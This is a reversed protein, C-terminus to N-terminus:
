FERGGGFSQPFFQAAMASPPNKPQSFVEIPRYGAAPPVKVGDTRGCGHSGRQAPCCFSAAVSHDVASGDDPATVVGADVTYRYGPAAVVM